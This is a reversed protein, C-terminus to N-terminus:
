IIEMAILYIAMEEIYEIKSFNEKTKFEKNYLIIDGYYNDYHYENHDLDSFDFELWYSNNTGAFVESSVFVIYKGCKYELIEGYKFKDSNLINLLKNNM